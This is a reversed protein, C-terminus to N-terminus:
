SLSNVKESDENVDLLSILSRAQINLYNPHRGLEQLQHLTMWRFTASADLDVKADIEIVMNRNHERYFRGGEESQHSDVRIQQPSAKLFLDLFQRAGPGEGILSRNPCCQVTPGIEGKSSLGAESQLHALFHLVGGRVQTVFGFLESEHQQMMPQTWSVVERNGITAKTAIVSFNHNESSIKDPERMWDQVENLSIRRSQFQTSFRMQTVWTLLEEWSYEPSADSSMSKLILAGYQSLSDQYRDVSAGSYSVGSLVSRSDMNILNDESSLAKIQGITMWCYDENEEVEHGDEHEVILNRNRKDLFRMGQESQFQDFFTKMSESQRFYDLYRPVRGGHVQLFNSRTAQLTPSLQVLNINGPEIKAQMLLHLIGDIRKALFGLIGIENQLIVPQDWAEADPSDGYVRLGQIAFFQGSEHVINGHSDPKWKELQDFPIPEICAQIADRRQSIWSRCSAVDAMVGSLAVASRLYDDATLISPNKVSSM